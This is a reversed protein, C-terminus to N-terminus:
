KDSAPPTTKAPAAGGSTPSGCGNAAILVFGAVILMALIKKVIAMREM